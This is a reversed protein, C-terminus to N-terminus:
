ARAWKRKLMGVSGIALLALTGPEPVASGASGGTVFIHDNTERVKFGSIATDGSLSTFSAFDVMGTKKGTKSFAAIIETEMITVGFASAGALQLFIVPDDKDETGHGFDIDRLMISISDLSVAQDYSFILEEDAHGGGGSIGKSGGGDATQVGAGKSGREIYVSGMQGIADAMFPNSPAIMTRATMVFGAAGGFGDVPRFSLGKNGKGQTHEDLSVMNGFATSTGVVFVCVIVSVVMARSIRSQM